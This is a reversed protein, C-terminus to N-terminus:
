DRVRVIDAGLSALREEVALDGPFVPQAQAAITNVHPTNLEPQWGVRAAHAARALEDLIFRTREPGHTAVLAAFADRWEATEQPDTDPMTNLASIPTPANM